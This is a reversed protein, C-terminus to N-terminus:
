SHGPSSFCGRDSHHRTPWAWGTVHGGLWAWSTMRAALWVWGALWSAEKFVQVNDSAQEMTQKFESLRATINEIAADVRDSATVLSREAVAMNKDLFLEERNEPPGEANQCLKGEPVAKGQISNEANEMGLLHKRWPTFSFYDDEETNMQAIIKTVSLALPDMQDGDKRSTTVSSHQERECLSQEVALETIACACSEVCWSLDAADILQSSLSFHLPLVPEPSGPCVPLM